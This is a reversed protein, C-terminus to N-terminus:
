LHMFNDFPDIDIPDNSNTSDIPDILYIPYNNHITGSSFFIVVFFLLLFYCFFHDLFFKSAWKRTILALTMIM